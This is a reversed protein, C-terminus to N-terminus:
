QDASDFDGQKESDREQEILEDIVSSRLRIEKEMLLSLVEHLEKETMRQALLRIGLLYLEKSWPCERVSRYFLSLAQATNGQRVEHEIYLKWLVISSRTGPSEVAREFLSRVQNIDYPHSRHLESYLASIWLIVNPDKDLAQSFLTRVRNRIKTRKENWIYLSLFVTNNPFLSLAREMANRLLTPKYGGYGRAAHRYLLEAYAIWMTESTFGREARREEIYSFVREYIACASTIGVTLYEFLGYCVNYHQAMQIDNEVGVLTSYQATKQTFYERTKLIQTRSPLAMTEDYPKGEAMSVLIKLAEDYRDYEIEMQAFMRYILPLHLKQADPFTQCTALATQYVKRAEKPRDHSKEMQAYANWLILNTRHEKLMSKALQRGGKYGCSSEFSLYCITLHENQDLSILQQFANRAFGVDVDSDVHQKGHCGFWQRDRAFLESVGVPYSVPLDQPDKTEDATHDPEMPVGDIYYVLRRSPQPQPWFHKLKLDNHTFTDTCFHTNTGVGPPTYPLGLFVFTSYILSTRAGQTTINFLFGRLDDSLVIRYPDEDVEESKMEKKLTLVLCMAELLSVLPEDSVTFSANKRENGRIAGLRALKEGFRAVESDWFDAFESLMNDFSYKDNSAHFASPQFLCFEVLAQLNAFAKEHYGKFSHAISPSSLNFMGSQKMFLCSRLFIYVMVSEINEREEYNDNRDRNNQLRRAIRNLTSLCDEFVKLCQSFSFSAFNTQRLNIYDAWLRISQPNKKLVTDWERLLTLTDWLEGGCRLYAVLLDENDPNKERAKEFISMKVENLSAKNAKSKSKYEAGSVLGMAAEDQFEIFALWLQVDNPNETLEKNFWITRQRVYEDFSQGGDNENEEEEEDERKSIGQIDRYDVGSSIVGEDLPKKTHKGEPELLVRDKGNAFTDESEALSDPKIHLRKMAKDTEQWAYEADTYRLLKQRRHSETLVTLIKGSKASASDIRAPPRLGIISGGGSRHYSPINYAHNKGYYLNDSDGQKDIVFLCGTELSTAPTSDRSSREKRRRPSRSRTRSRHRRRERVSPSSSRNRRSERSRERKRKKQKRDHKSDRDSDRSQNLESIDPASAFSPAPIRSSIDPASSFSPPPPIPRGIQTFLSSSGSLGQSHMETISDQKENSGM